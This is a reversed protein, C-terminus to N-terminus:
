DDPDTRVSIEQPSELGPRRDRGALDARLHHIWRRMRSGAKRAAAPDRTVLVSGEAREAIEDAIPGVLHGTVMHRLRPERTAGLVILDQDEGAALIAEVVNEGRQVRFETDARTLRDLGKLYQLAQEERGNSAENPIVMLLTLRAGMMDAIADALEVEAPAYPSGATAVLIREYKRHGRYKLVGVRAPASRLIADVHSGRIRLTHFEGHWGLLLARTRPHIFSMVARGRDRAMVRHIRLHVGYEEMRRRTKALWEKPVPDVAESLPSQYPVETVIVADVPNDHRRALAAAIALLHRNPRGAELEVLVTAPEDERTPEATLLRRKEALARVEWMERVKDTLGFGPQILTGNRVGVRRCWLYWAVGIMVFGVAALQSFLDLQPIPALAMVAGALPLVPFLPVRFSPRYWDPRTWRLQVVALNVLSFVVMGFVGGLKALGEVDLMLVLAVMAGGTIFISRSPTQFKPHIRSIWKTMLGDRAMAFPYRSSSLIAANGTSLTALIGAAGVLAGGLAGLLVQGADALPASSAIIDPIPLVGTVILMTGVYLVTVLAVSSLIGLPLNRGPNKVEEAVAAAKVIGLYSIFVVGTTAFVGSWGEPFMPRMTTMDMATLGRAIFAGLIALLAVVVVNQFVGSAKAGILNVLLLLIGGVVATALVPV